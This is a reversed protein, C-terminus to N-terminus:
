RVFALIAEIHGSQLRPVPFAEDLNDFDVFMERSLSLTVIPGFVLHYLVDYDPRKFTGNDVGREIIDRLTERQLAIYDTYFRMSLDPMTRSVEAMIPSMRGVDSHLTIDYLVKLAHTLRECDSLAADDKLAKLQGIAPAYGVIIATIFLEDKSRFHHYFSAKKIGCAQALDSMSTGSFGKELFLKTATQVIEMRRPDDQIDSVKKTMGM